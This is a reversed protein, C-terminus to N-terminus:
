ANPLASLITVAPPVTTVYYYGLYTAGDDTLKIEFTYSAYVHTALDFDVGNLGTEIHNRQFNSHININSIFNDGIINSNFSTGDVENNQFSNAVQNNTFSDSITNGSFQNGVENDKFDNEVTNFEFNTGITNGIFNDGISNSDFFGAINNDDFSSGIFNSTFIPEINNAAFETEGLSIITNNVFITKIRNAGILNAIITSNWCDQSFINDIMTSVIDGINIGNLLFIINNLKDSPAGFSAIGIDTIAGLENGFCESATSSNNFTYFDSFSNGNDTLVAFVGSAPATEWRRFKIVRWDYGASVNIQGDLRYYIRGRDDASTTTNVVQYHLIDQPYVTSM